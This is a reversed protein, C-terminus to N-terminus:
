YVDCGSLRKADSLVEQKNLIMMNIKTEREQQWCVYASYIAFRKKLARCSAGPM